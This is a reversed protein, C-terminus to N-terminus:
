SEVVLISGNRRGTVTATDGDALTDAAKGALATAEGSPTVLSLYRVSMNAVRDEIILEHVTGSAAEVRANPAPATTAHEVADHPAHAASFPAFGLTALLSVGALFRTRRVSM